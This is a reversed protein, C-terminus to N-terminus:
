SASIVGLRPVNLETLIACEHMKSLTHGDIFTYDHLEFDLAVITAEETAITFDVDKLKLVMPHWDFANRRADILADTQASTQSIDEVSSFFTLQPVGASDNVCIMGSVFLESGVSELEYEQKYTSGHAVTVPIVLNRTAVMVDKPETMGEPLDLCHALELGPLMNAFHPNYVLYGNTQHIRANHPASTIPDDMFVTNHIQTLVEPNYVPTVDFDLPLDTIRRLNDGFAKMIDGSMTVMDDDAWVPELLQEMFTILQDMTKPASHNVLMVQAAEGGNPDSTPSYLWLWKPYYIYMQSKEGPADLFINSNMWIHRDFIPMDSPIVLTAMKNRYNELFFRFDAARGEFSSYNLGMTKFIAEPTYRNRQTYNKLLGYARCAFAYAQYISDMCVLYLFSDPAEYNRAGANAHRIYTYLRRAAINMPDAATKAIGFTPIYGLGMIGPYTADAINGNKNYWIADNGNKNRLYDIQSGLANSFPIGASTRLITDNSAYWSWDNLKGEEPLKGEAKTNQEENKNFNRKYSKKGKYSKTKDSM